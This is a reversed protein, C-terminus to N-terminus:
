SSSPQTTLAGVTSSSVPSGDRRSERRRDQKDNPLNSGKTGGEQKLKTSRCKGVEEPVPAVAPSGVAVQQGGAAVCLLCSILMM